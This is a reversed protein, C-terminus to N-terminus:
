YNGGIGSHSFRILVERGLPPALSLHQQAVPGLAGGGGGGGGGRGGGGGGRGGMKRCM